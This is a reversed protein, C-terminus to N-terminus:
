IYLVMTLFCIFSYSFIYIYVLYSDAFRKLKLVCVINRGSKGVGDKGLVVVRINKIITPASIGLKRRNKM